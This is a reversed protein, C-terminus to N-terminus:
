NFQKDAFPANEKVAIKLIDALRAILKEESFEKTEGTNVDETEIHMKNLMEMGIEAALRMAKVDGDDIAKNFIAQYLDGLRHVQKSIAIKNVEEAWGPLQKWNYGTTKTVGIVTELYKTEYPTGYLGNRLKSPTALFAQFMKQQESWIRM